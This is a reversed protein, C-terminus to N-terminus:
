QRECSRQRHNQSAPEAQKAAPEATKEETDDCAAKVVTYDIEPLIGAKILHNNLQEYLDPLRNVVHEEFTDFVPMTMSRNLELRSVIHYFGHCVFTPNLPNNRDTVEKPSIENMRMQLELLDKKLRQDAKSIIVKVVLWDEFDDKEVLTISEEPIKM